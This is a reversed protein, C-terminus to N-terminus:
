WRQGDLVYKFQYIGPELKLTISWAAGDTHPTLLDANMNWRNFEGAVAIRRIYGVPTFKLTVEQADPPITPDEQQAWTSRMPALLLLALLIPLLRISKTMM